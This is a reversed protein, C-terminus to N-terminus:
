ALTMSHVNHVPETAHRHVPSSFLANLVVCAAGRAWVENDGPETVIRLSDALGDFVHARLAVEM